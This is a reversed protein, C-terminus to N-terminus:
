NNIIVVGRYFRVQGNYHIYPSHPPPSITNLSDIYLESPANLSFSLPPPPPASSANFSYPLPSSLQNNLHALSQEMRNMQINLRRM